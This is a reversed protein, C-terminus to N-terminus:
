RVSAENPALREKMLENSKRVTALQEKRKM